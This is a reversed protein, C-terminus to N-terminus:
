AAQDRGGVIRGARIVATPASLSEPAAAVDVPYVVLDAPEGLAAGPLGLWRRAQWTTADLVQAGTRPAVLFLAQVEDVIRGHDIYGGADTGAHVAVGAEIAAAITDDSRAHLDRMHKAYAPFRAAADRHV